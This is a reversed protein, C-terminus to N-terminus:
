LDLVENSPKMDALRGAKKDDDIASALFILAFFTFILGGVFWLWFDRGNNRAWLGCFLGIGLIPLAAPAYDNIWGVSGHNAALRREVADLRQEIKHLRDDQAFAARAQAMMMFSVFAVGMMSRMYM